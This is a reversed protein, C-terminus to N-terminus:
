VNIDKVFVAGAVSWPFPKNSRQVNNFLRYMKNYRPLNNIPPVIGIPFIDYGTSIAIYM